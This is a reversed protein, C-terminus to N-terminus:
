PNASAFTAIGALAFAHQRDIFESLKEPSMETPFIHARVRHALSPFVCLAVINLKAQALIAKPIKGLLQHLISGLIVGQLEGVEAVVLEDPAFERTGQHIMIRNFDGAPGPDFNRRIMGSMFAHLRREGPADSSLGGDLPFEEESRKFAKRLVHRFLNEKSGFHYNVSAINAGAAECVEAVTADRYGKEAFIGVAATLLRSKTSPAPM